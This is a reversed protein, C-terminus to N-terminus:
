TSADKEEMREKIEALGRAARSKVTGIPLSLADAIESMSLDGFYALTLVDRQPEPLKRLLETARSGDVSRSSEPPVSEEAEESDLAATRTWTASRMLDLCRSRLRLLLWTKVSSREPDYDGAHSWAELFVDHVIEEADRRSRLMKVAVGLMISSHRDYLAALGERSGLATERLLEADTAAM